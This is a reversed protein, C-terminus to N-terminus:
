GIAIGKKMNKKHHAHGMFFSLKHVGKKGTGPTAGTATKDAPAAGAPPNNGEKQEVPNAQPAAQEAQRADAPKDSKGPETEFNKADRQPAQEEKVKPKMPNSPAEKNEAKAFKTGIENEDAKEDKKIESKGMCKACSESKVLTFGETKGMAHKECLHEKEIKHANSAGHAKQEKAHLESKQFPEFGCDLSESKEFPKNSYYGVTHMGSQFEAVKSPAEAKVISSKGLLEQAKALVALAAEKATYTKQNAM